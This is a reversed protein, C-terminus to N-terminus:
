QYLSRIEASMRKIEDESIPYDQIQVVIPGLEKALAEKILRSVPESEDDQGRRHPENATNIALWALTKSFSPDRHYETAWDTM